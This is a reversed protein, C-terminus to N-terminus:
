CQDVPHALSPERHPATTADESAPLSEAAQQLRQLMAKTSRHLADADTRARLSPQPLRPARVTPPRLPPLRRLRPLQLPRRVLRVATIALAIVLLAVLLIAQQNVVFAAPAMVLIIAASVASRWSPFRLWKIDFRPLSPRWLRLGARAPPRESEPEASVESPQAMTVTPHAPESDLRPPLTLTDARTEPAQATAMSPHTPESEPQPASTLTAAGPVAERGRDYEQRLAPSCLVSYAENLEDLKAAASPDTPVAANYVRALHWYSQDVMRADAEPHLRMIQYYDKVPSAAAEIQKSM